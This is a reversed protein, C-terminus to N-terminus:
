AEHTEWLLLLRKPNEGPIIYKHFVNECAGKVKIATSCTPAMKANGNQGALLPPYASIGGGHQGHTVVLHPLPAFRVEWATQMVKGSAIPAYLGCLPTREASPEPRQYPQIEPCGWDLVVSSVAQSCSLILALNFLLLCRKYM